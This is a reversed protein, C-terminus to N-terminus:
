NMNNMQHYLKLLVRTIVDLLFSYIQNRKYQLKFIKAVKVNLNGNYLLLTVTDQIIINLVCEMYERLM